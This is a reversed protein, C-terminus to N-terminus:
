GQLRDTRRPSGRRHAPRQRLEHELQRIERDRAALTANLRSREERCIGIETRLKDIEVNARRTESTLRHQLDAVVARLEDAEGLGLLRKLRGAPGLKLPQRDATGRSGRRPAPPRARSRTPPVRGLHVDSDRRDNNDENFSVWGM